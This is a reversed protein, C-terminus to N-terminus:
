LWLIFEHPIKCISHKCKEQLDFSTSILFHETFWIVLFSPVHFLVCSVCEDIALMEMFIYQSEFLSYYLMLRRVQFIVMNQKNHLHIISIYSSLLFQLMGYVWIILGKRSMSLRSQVPGGGEERWGRWHFSSPHETPYLM